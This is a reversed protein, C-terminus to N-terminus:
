TFIMSATCYAASRCARPAGGHVVDRHRCMTGRARHAGRGRRLPASHDRAPRPHPSVASRWNANAQMWSGGGGAAEGTRGEGGSALARLPLPRLSRLSRGHVLERSNIFDHRRVVDAVVHRQDIPGLLHRAAGLVGGIDQLGAHQRSPDEAARIRVALDDFDIDGRRCLQRAHLRDDGAGVAVLGEAHQRDRAGLMRQRSVLHAIAALRHRRHRRDIIGGRALRDLQDPQLHAFQGGVVLRLVRERRVRRLKVGLLGAVDLAVHQEFQAAHRFAERLGIQHALAGVVAGLDALVLHLHVRRDGVVVGLAIAHRHMGRRLHRVVDVQHQRLDEVHVHRADAHDLRMDAAAEAAAGLREVDFQDGRQQRALGAAAHAGHDVALLGEDGM